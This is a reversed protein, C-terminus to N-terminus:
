FSFQMSVFHTAGLESNPVYAYDLWLQGFLELGVGGSITGNGTFDSSWGARVFIWRVPTVEVGVHVKQESAPRGVAWDVDCAALVLDEGFIASAGIKNVWPVYNVPEGATGYWQIRTQGVDMLNAGVAVPIEAVAFTGLFGLDFGLGGSRGELISDHYYKVTCGVSLYDRLTVGASACFISSTASFTEYSGPNEEDWVIIDDVVAGIWGISLGLARVSETQLRLDIRASLSVDQFTIGFDAGYPQSYMASASLDPARVLSAPNYYAIPKGLTVAVFAGGMALPRADIGIRSFASAGVGPPVGSAMALMCGAVLFVAVPVLTKM